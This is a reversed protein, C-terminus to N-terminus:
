FKTIEKLGTAIVKINYDGSDDESSSICSVGRKSSLTTIFGTKPTPSFTVSYTLPCYLDDENNGFEPLEYSATADRM